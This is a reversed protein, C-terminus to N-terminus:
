GVPWVSPTVRGEVVVFKPLRRLGIKVAVDRAITVIDEGAPKAKHLQLSFRTARWVAMLLCLTSGGVWLVSLLTVIPLSGWAVPRTTSIPAPQGPSASPLSNPVSAGNTTNIRVPQRDESPDTTVPAVSIEPATEVPMRAPAPGCTAAPDMLFGRRLAGPLDGPNRQPTGMGSSDGDEARGGQNLRKSDPM